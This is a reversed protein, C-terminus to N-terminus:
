SDLDFFVPSDQHKAREEAFIGTAAIYRREVGSFCHLNLYVYPCQYENKALALCDLLFNKRDPFMRSNLLRYLYWDNVQYLVFRATLNRSLTTLDVHRNKIFPNQVTFICTLKYHHSYMTVLRDLNDKINKFGLLDDLIILLPEEEAIKVITDLPPVEDM